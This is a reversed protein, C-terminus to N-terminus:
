GYIFKRSYKARSDVISIIGPKFLGVVLYTSKWAGVVNHAIMYMNISTSTLDVFEM